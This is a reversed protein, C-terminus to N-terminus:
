RHAGSGPAFQEVFLISYPPPTDFENWADSQQTIKALDSRLAELRAMNKLQREYSRVIERFTFRRQKLYDETAGQPANAAYNPSAEILASERKAADLLARVDDASVPQVDASAGSSTPAKMAPLGPVAVAWGHGPLLLLLIVTGLLYKLQNVSM